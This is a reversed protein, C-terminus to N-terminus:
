EEEILDNYSVELAKCLTDITELSVNVLKGNYMRSIRDHNIPKLGKAKILRRLDTQTIGYAILIEKLKLRAM